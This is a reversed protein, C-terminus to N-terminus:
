QCKVAEVFAQLSAYTLIGKDVVPRDRHIQEVAKSANEFLGLKLLCAVLMCSSRSRGGKCHIYAKKGAHEEFWAAVAKAGDELTERGPAETDLTKYRIQKIKSKAYAAEPGGWEKTMNVVLGVELSKLEEVHHALPRGGLFFPTGKIESAVDFARPDNLDRHGSHFYPPKGRRCCTDVLYSVTLIPVDWFCHIWASRTFWTAEASPRCYVMAVTLGHVLPGCALITQFSVGFFRLPFLCMCPWLIFACETLLSCTKRFAGPQEEDKIIAEAVRLGFSWFVVARGIWSYQTECLTASLIIPLARWAVGEFFRLTKAPLTSARILEAVILMVYLFYAVM